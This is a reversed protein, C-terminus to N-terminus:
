FEVASEIRRVVDDVARPNDLRLKIADQPCHAACRGCVRCLDAIVARGARMEIAEIYCKPVCEGCGICDDTVEISLGEVPYFMNDLMEPTSHRSFRTVCCCECCLCVTLLKGEDPIMFIDNDPRAKGTIPILGAEFAKRIHAKAEEASVVRRVKEPIKLASEGMMLCGIEADYDKCGMARRCGCFDVIVRHRAKDILKDLVEESLAIGRFGEIDKNIPIWSINSKEPDFAPLLERFFKYDALKLTEVLKFLRDAREINKRGGGMPHRREDWIYDRLRPQLEERWLKKVSKGVVKSPRLDM